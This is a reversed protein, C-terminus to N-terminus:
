MTPPRPPPLSQGFGSSLLSPMAETCLLVGGVRQCYRVLGLGATSQFMQQMVCLLCKSILFSLKQLMTSQQTNQICKESVPLAGDLETSM